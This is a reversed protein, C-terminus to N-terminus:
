EEHSAWSFFAKLTRAYGQITKSSLNAEQAPKAPNNEDARVNERLHVLFARLHTTTVEAMDSPLDNKALYRRLIRLKGLYWRITTPQKGEALCFLRYGEMLTSLDSVRSM